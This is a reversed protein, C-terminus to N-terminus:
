DERSKEWEDIKKWIATLARDCAKAENVTFNDGIEGVNECLEKIERLLEDRKDEM